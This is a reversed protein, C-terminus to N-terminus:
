RPTSGDKAAREIEKSLWDLIYRVSEAPDTGPIPVDTCPTFPFFAGASGRVYRSRWAKIARVPTKGATFGNARLVAEIETCAATLGKKDAQLRELAFGAAAKIHRISERRKHERTGSATAALIGGPTSPGGNQLEIYLLDLARSFQGERSQQAHLFDLVARLAALVAVRQDSTSDDCLQNADTLEELMRLVSANGGIDGVAEAPTTSPEQFVFGDSSPILEFEDGGSQINSSV